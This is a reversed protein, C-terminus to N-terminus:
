YADDGGPRSGLTEAMTTARRAWDTQGFEDAVKRFYLAAADVKGMKLYWEAVNFYHEALSDNARRRLLATDDAESSRPYQRLFEDAVTRAKYYPVPDYEPGNADRMMSQAMGALAEQVDPGNPYMEVYQRYASEAEIFHRRDHYSRALMIQAKRAYDSFPHQSVISDVVKEGLGYSRWLRLGLFRVRAGSLLQGALELKGDLARDAHRSNPYDRIFREYAKFAKRYSRDALLAEARLLSAKERLPEDAQEIGKKLIRASLTYRGSLFLATARQFIVGAESDDAVAATDWGDAPTWAVEGHATVPLALLVMGFLAVGAFVAFRM